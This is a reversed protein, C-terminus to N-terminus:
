LCLYSASESADQKLYFVPCHIIDLIVITTLLLILQSILVSLLIILLYYFKFKSLSNGYIKCM